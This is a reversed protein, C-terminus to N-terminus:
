HHFLKYFFILYLNNSAIKTIGEKRLFFDIGFIYCLIKMVQKVANVASPRIFFPPEKGGMLRM